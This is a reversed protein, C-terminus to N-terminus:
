GASSLRAGKQLSIMPFSNWLIKSTNATRSTPQFLAKSCIMRGAELRAEGVEM